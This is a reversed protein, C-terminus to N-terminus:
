HIQFIKFSHRVKIKLTLEELELSKKKIRIFNENSYSNETKVIEVRKKTLHNRLFENDKRLDNIEIRKQLQLENMEQDLEQELDIEYQYCTELETKLYDVELDHKKKLEELELEFDARLQTEFHEQKKDIERTMQIIESEANQFM